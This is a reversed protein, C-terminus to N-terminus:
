TWAVTIIEIPIIFDLLHGGGLIWEIRSYEGATTNFNANTERIYNESTIDFLPPVLVATIASEVISVMRKQRKSNPQIDAETGECDAVYDPDKKVAYIGHLHPTGRM